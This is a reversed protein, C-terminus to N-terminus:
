KGRAIASILVLRSVTFSYCQEIRRLQNFLMRFAVCFDKNDCRTHFTVREDYEDKWFMKNFMVQKPIYEMKMKTINILAVNLYRVRTTLFSYSYIFFCFDDYAFFLWFFYLSGVIHIALSVHFVYYMYGVIFVQTIGVMYLLIAYFNISVERMFETEKAGLLNDIEICNQILDLGRYKDGFTINFLLLNSFITFHMIAIYEVSSLYQEKANAFLLLYTACADAVILVFINYIVTGFNREAVINKRIVFRCFGSFELFRFIKYFKKVYDEMLEKNNAEDM